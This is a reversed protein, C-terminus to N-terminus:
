EATIFFVESSSRQTKHVGGPNRGANGAVSVITKGGFKVEIVIGAHTLDRTLYMDGVQPNAVIKNKSKAWNYLDGVSASKKIILNAKTYCWVAFAACWPQGSKYGLDLLYKDIDRGRNPTGRVEANGVQSLAITAVNKRKESINGNIYNNVTSANPSPAVGPAVGPTTQTTDQPTDTAQWDIAPLKANGSGPYEQQLLGLCRLTPPGMLSFRPKTIVKPYVPLPM